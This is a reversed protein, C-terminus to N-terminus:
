FGALEAIAYLRITLLVADFNVSSTFAAARRPKQITSCCIRERNWVWVLLYISEPSCCISFCRFRKTYHIPYVLSVPKVDRLSFNELEKGDNLWRAPLKGVNVGGRPDVTSEAVASIEQSALLECV